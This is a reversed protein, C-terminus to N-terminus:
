PKIMPGMTSPGSNSDPKEIPAVNETEISHKWELAKPVFESLTQAVLEGDIKEMDLIKFLALKNESESYGLTGIRPYLMQNAKLASLLINERFKGPPIVCIFTGILLDGNKFPEIQVELKEEFVISCSGVSDVYLSMDLARSLEDILEEFRKRM